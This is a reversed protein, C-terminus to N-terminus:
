RPVAAYMDGSCAFPRSASLRLSTPRETAHHVLHQGTPACKVARVHGVHEARDNSEFRVPVRQRGVHWLRNARQQLPAEDLIAAPPDRVDRRCEKNEIMLCSDRGRARGAAGSGCLGSHPAGRWQDGNCQYGPM